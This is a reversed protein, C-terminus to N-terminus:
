HQGVAEAADSINNGQEFSIFFDQANKQVRLRVRRELEKEFSECEMCETNEKLTM